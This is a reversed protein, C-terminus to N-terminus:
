YTINIPKGLSHDLALPTESSHGVLLQDFLKGILRFIPFAAALSISPFSSSFATSLAVIAVATAGMQHPWEFPFAMWNQQQQKM